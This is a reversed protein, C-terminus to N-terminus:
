VSHIVTSFIMAVGTWVHKVVKNEYDSWSGVVISVFVLNLNILVAVSSSCVIRINWNYSPWIYIVSYPCM